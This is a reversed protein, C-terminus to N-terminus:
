HLGLLESLMCHSLDAFFERGSGKRVDLVYIYNAVGVWIEIEPPFFLWFIGYGFGGSWSTEVYKCKSDELTWNEEEQSLMGWARRGEKRLCNEELPWDTEMSRPPDGAGRLCSAGYWGPCHLQCSLKKINFVPTGELSVGCPAHIVLVQCGANIQRWLHDARSPIRGSLQPEWFAAGLLPLSLLSRPNTGRWPGPVPVSQSPQSAVFRICLQVFHWWTCLVASRLPRRSLLASPRPGSVIKTLM